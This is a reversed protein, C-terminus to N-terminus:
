EIGEEYEEQSEYEKITFDWGGNRSDAYNLSDKHRPFEGYREEGNEYTIVYYM